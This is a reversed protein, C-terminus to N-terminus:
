CITTEPDAIAEYTQWVGLDNKRLRTTYHVMSTVESDPEVEGTVRNKTLSESADICYTVTATDDDHVTVTRDYYRTTGTFSENESVLSDIWEAASELADGTSYFSLAPRELDGSTIAEDMSNVRRENDALVAIEVPDDTDVEEFVNNVDDPLKISPRDIGDDTPSPSTSESASGDSADEVGEIKDESDAEDGGGCGSLLLAAAAASAALVIRFRRATM